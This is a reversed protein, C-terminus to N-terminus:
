SRHWACCGPMTLGVASLGYGWRYGTRPLAAHFPPPSTALFISLIPAWGLWDWSHAALRQAHPTGHPFAATGVAPTVLFEWDAFFASIAQMYALKREHMIQLDAIPKGNEICAVRGSEIAERWRPLLRSYQAYQSPWFFRILEPGLPGRDPRVEDVFAGLEPLGEVTQPVLAAVAAVTKSSSRLPM